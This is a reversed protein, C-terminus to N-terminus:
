RFVQTFGVTFVPVPERFSGWVGGRASVAWTDSLRYSGGLTARLALGWGARDDDGGDILRDSEFDGTFHQSGFEAFVSWRHDGDPRWEASIRPELVLAVDEDILDGLLGADYSILFGRVGGEFSVLFSDEFARLVNVKGSLGVSNTVITSHLEGGIQVREWPSYVLGVSYLVTGPFDLGVRYQMAAHGRPVIGAGSISQANATGNGLLAGLIFLGTAATWRQTVPGPRQRIRRDRDPFVRARSRTGLRM